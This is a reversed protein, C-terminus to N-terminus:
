LKREKIEGMAEVDDGHFKTFLHKGAIYDDLAEQESRAEVEYYETQNIEVKVKYKKMIIGDEGLV